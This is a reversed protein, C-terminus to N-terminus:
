MKEKILNMIKYVLNFNNKFINKNNMNIVVYCNYSVIKIFIQFLVDIVKININNYKNYIKISSSIDKYLKDFKNIILNLNNYLSIIADSIDVIEYSYCSLDFDILFLGNENNIVNNKTIDNHIICFSNNFRKKIYNYCDNYFNIISVYKKNNEYNLINKYKKFNTLPYNHFKEDYGLLLTNLPEGNCEFKCNYYKKKLFIHNYKKSVKHFNALLKMLDKINNKKNNCVIYEQLEYYYNNNKYLRIIKAVNIANDNLYSIYKHQSILEKKSLPIVIRKNIMEKGKYNILEVFEKELM